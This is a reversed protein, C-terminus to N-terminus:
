QDEQSIHAAGALAHEKAALPTPFTTEPADEPRAPRVQERELVYRLTKDHLDPANIFSVFKARREPDHVAEAWEDVYTDTHRQMAAELEEGIGLSDEVIVRRLEDIGGPYEEVWRATRQLKDAERIYLILFRDICRQLTEDDLDEVLLQAHAPQAGGNGGVYLNWGRHTAIVGVDKAQAEACERACGSVGIKIKHPSRLGRYRRELHSAMATSDGVGYRCWNTGLCSKVMRLSKGYAHGSEFGAEVLREWIEPLQELRAGFMGIRQAGNVKVYLGYDKAVQAFVLLKEPTVEGAPMAPIVSYTGDKQINAMVHDNTDQLSGLQRGVPSHRKGSLAGLSSLISAVTPRCVACGRGAGTGHAAVVETFTEQGGEEVLRYLEARSHDFHECLARSVEIGSKALEQNLLKTLSPVCSGCVTGATTCEKIAGITHCGQENVAHRVTGASVNNCSCIVADDPMEAGALADGAGEPAIVASPDAGLARGTMPRLQSYLAIDGVFVGGLLTTADDSMVLKRYQRHVPDVFSVELADPTMANVDGFAAADVGVGKLKTGDEGRQHTRTGGLFRDAVVDAMDNGPAILGACVGDFSACEGIAWIDPDSTQCSEGVVIGGREGVALGAERGIRDRPRIGTSFVVVDAPLESGDTLEATGIAGDEAPRFATAGVGTRVEIGKDQILLRLMEGGGDDLQVAMLRDAFEVVTSRAGLDQLAAAAELGLVGGGVVVGRVERGLAEGREAVWAALSEVDDVTRYSFSGPLDKGEARPAWAWSGTALVLRDYEHVTGSACTVTHASRDVSEAADGTVLTIRPDAWVGTDLALMEARRHGFWDSLHVRDYPHQTEEGIVTLTWDGTPDQSQMRAAFRHGTMGGGIVVIRTGPPLPTGAAPALPSHGTANM